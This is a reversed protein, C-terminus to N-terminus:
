ATASPVNGFPCSFVIPKPSNRIMCAISRINLSFKLRATDPVRSLWSKESYESVCGICLDRDSRDDSGEKECLGSPSAGDGGSAQTHYPRYSRLSRGAPGFSDGRGPVPLSAARFPRVKALATANSGAISNQATVHRARCEAAPGQGSQDIPVHTM